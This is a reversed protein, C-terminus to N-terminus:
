SAFYKELVDYACNYGPLFTVGPGPHTSSGCIYLNEIPTANSSGPVMTRFEMLEEPHMLGHCFDGNTTGVMTSFHDSAFIARSDIKDHFDPYVETIKSVAIDFLIDKLKGREKQPATCPYYYIYSSGVHCGTPALAPDVISSIQLGVPPTDPVMGLECKQFARQQDRPDPFRTMGVKNNVDENLHEWRGGFTPLGNLKWLVNMFAGRSDIRKIREIFQTPLHEEGALKFFTTQKDINSLIVKARIEEGSKLQVGIAKGSEVLINTVPTKLRVEGGKDEIAKVLTESLSGMGGKPKRMLAGSGDTALAFLLCCASGPTYPGRYTSQVALFSLTGRITRHKKEDPFFRDILDMASGFFMMQLQEKQKETTASSFIEQMTKPQSRPNFRDMIEAPYTVYDVLAMFGEIAEIGFCEQLHNAQEIPDTFMRYPEDDEGVINVMAIPTDIFEQGYKEFELEEYIQQVIPFLHSAGLDNRCGHFVERTGANGGVFDNKELSIVKIGQDALVKASALGNTGAGIIIVDYDAM